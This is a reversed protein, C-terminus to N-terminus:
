AWRVAAWCLLLLVAAMAALIVVGIGVGVAKPVRQVLSPRDDPMASM